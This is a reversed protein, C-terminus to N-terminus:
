LVAGVSELRDLLVLPLVERRCLAGRALVGLLLRELLVGVQDLAGLVQCAALDPHRPDATLGLVELRLDVGRDALLDVLLDPLATARMVVHTPEPHLLSPLGTGM